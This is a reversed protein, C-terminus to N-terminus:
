GHSCAVRPRRGRDAVPGPSQGDVLQGPRRARRGPLHPGQLGLSQEGVGVEHAAGAVVVDGVEVPEAGDQPELGVAERQRRKAVSSRAHSAPM